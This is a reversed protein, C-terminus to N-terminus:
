NYLPDKQLLHNLGGRIKSYVYRLLVCIETAEKLYNFLCATLSISYKFIYSIIHSNQYCHNNKLAQIIIKVRLLLIKYKRQM